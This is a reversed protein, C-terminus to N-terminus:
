ECLVYDILWFYEFTRYRINKATNAPM